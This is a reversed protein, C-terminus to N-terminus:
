LPFFPFPLGAEVAASMAMTRSVPVRPSSPRAPPAARRARALPAGYGSWKSALASGQRPPRCRRRPEARGGDDARKSEGRQPQAAPLLSSCPSSLSFLSGFPNPNEPSGSGDRNQDQSMSARGDSSFPRRMNIPSGKPGPPRPRLALNRAWAWTVAQARSLASAAM